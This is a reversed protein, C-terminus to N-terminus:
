LSVFNATFGEEQLVLDTTFSVTMYTGTSQYSLSSSHDGSLSQIITSSGIFQGDYITIIDCCAETNIKNFSISVVKGPLAQLIYTSNLNSPYLDPYNPSTITGNGYYINSPPPTPTSTSSNATVYKAELAWAWFMDQNNATVYKAELAWAWFMDQDRIIDDCLEPHQNASFHKKFALIVFKDNETTGERLNRDPKTPFPRPPNYKQIIANNDMEDFDLWAGIGFNHFYTGWPFLPGPDPKRPPAIDEHGLIHQPLINYKRIIDQSMLASARIQDPDYPYYTRNLETANESDYGLNVHEIGLSVYNLNSDSGWTSVGAHWARLDDPVVQLIQGGTLNNVAKETIVYHASVRNVTSNSTFINVTTTFNDETFHMILYKIKGGKRSDYHNRDPNSFTNILYGNIGHITVNTVQVDPDDSFVGPYAQTISISSNDDATIVTTTLFTVFFLFLLFM